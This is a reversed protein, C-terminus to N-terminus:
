EEAAEALKSKKASRTYARVVWENEAHQQDMTGLKIQYLKLEFRPGCETLTISKVGRPQEYTHHRFSIYDNVNAFTLVRKSEEKPV